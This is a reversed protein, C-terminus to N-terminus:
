KALYIKKAIEPLVISSEVQYQKEPVLSKDNILKEGIAYAKDTCPPYVFTFCSCGQGGNKAGM